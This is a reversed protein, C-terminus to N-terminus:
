RPPRHLGAHRLQGLTRGLVDRRYAQLDRGRYDYFGEGSRLGNRNERMLREVIAPAQYRERSLHEALYRSAYYLIDNGGYDIFEIVGLAAFRLGLGYRTARDIDEASAVGEEVMRAAENMILAQLRPVIYGPAAACLVPVKGIDELLGRLRAIASHATGAHASLEVLPIVFAPNLWHANLVREPHTAFAALAGPLITSTTSALIADAPALKCLRAFAPQKAALTEPVGEFVVEARGLAEAAEAEPVLRIRKMVREVAARPMAELDALMELSARMEALADDRLRQWAAAERAKLDILAIDYGAYAFALAIGRGMRGAGAAAIRRPVASM